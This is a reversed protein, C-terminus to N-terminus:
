RAAACESRWAMWRFAHPMRRSSRAVAPVLFFAVCLAAANETSQFVSCLPSITRVPRPPLNDRQFIHTNHSSVYRYQHFRHHFCRLRTGLRLIRSNDAFPFRCKVSCGSQSHTSPYSSQFLYQFGKAERGSPSDDPISQTHRLRCCHCRRCHRQTRPPTRPQEQSSNSRHLRSANLPQFKFLYGSDNFLERIAIRPVCRSRHHAPM